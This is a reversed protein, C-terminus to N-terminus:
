IKVTLRAPGRLNIRGNWQVADDLALGPFRQVLREIAVRAELRALSAGLCHHPGGGFSVHQRANERTLKLQDADPGWFREDHNASALVTVIFTGPPIERGRVTLPELTIRRSLQVPSVYRLLEEVANASLGPDARLLALQGPHELLALVGGAILNVTTEHGAIFLLEVQVILEQDTLKDGQDEAAILATLLDDAPNERKWAIVDATIAHFEDAAEAIATLVDPDTVVDLSRVIMGSLERTRAIDTPPMGLMRSIVEFPLPFALAGVLDARGAEAIRDLAGDVLGTIMPELAAISRPTFVKTVLSRLRTHDPPDRDLMSLERGHRDSRNYNEVFQADTVNRPDVSLHSRLLAAVDAYRSLLWIGFPSEHVPGADRLRRYAPYPDDTFGPELPNFLLETETM